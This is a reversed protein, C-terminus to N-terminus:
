QLRLRGLGPGFYRRGRPIRFRGIGLRAANPPPVTRWEAIQNASWSGEDNVLADFVLFDDVVWGNRMVCRASGSNQLLVTRM